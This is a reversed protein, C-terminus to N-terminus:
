NPIVTLTQVHQPALNLSPKKPQHCYAILGALLNVLFNIPSHHRSHEIQSINKLQDNITEIIARKPLLLKDVLPLLRNKMNRRVHAILDVGHTRLTEFLAHSTARTPSSNALCTPAFTRIRPSLILESKSRSNSIPMIFLFNAGSRSSTQKIALKCNWNRLELKSFSTALNPPQRSFM